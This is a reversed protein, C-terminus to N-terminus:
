PPEAVQEPFRQPSLKRKRSEKNNNFGIIVAALVIASGGIVTCVTLPEDLFIWALMVSSFADLTMIIATDSADMVRLAVFTFIFAAASSLALGTIAPLHPIPNELGGFALGRLINTTGAALSVWAACTAPDSKTMVRESLVLYFAFLTAACLAFGIGLPSITVCEGVIIVLAAGSISLGLAVLNPTSPRKRTLPISILMVITPYAYFLLTVAAASGRELGLYFFFSEVSYLVGGLLFVILREGKAPFIPRKLAVVLAMTMVGAILFRLGLATAAGVGAITLLRSFIVTVGFSLAGVIASAPGIFQSLAARRSQIYTTM